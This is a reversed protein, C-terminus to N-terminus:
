RLSVDIKEYLRINEGLFPLPDEALHYWEMGPLHRIDLINGCLFPFLQPAIRIRSPLGTEDWEQEYLLHSSQGLLESVPFDNGTGTCFLKWAAPTLSEGLLGMYLAAALMLLGEQKLGASLAVYLFPSFVDQEASKSSKLLLSRLNELPSIRSHQARSDDGWKILDDM